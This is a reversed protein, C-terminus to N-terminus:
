GSVCAGTSVGAANRPLSLDTTLDSAALAYGESPRDTAYAFVIGVVQGASNVVPAGSDGAIIQASLIWVSRSVRGQGYINPGVATIQDALWVPITAIAAQGDPHGFAAGYIGASAGVDIPLASDGLNNVQLLAIDQNPDYLVVTAALRNGTPTYVFTEGPHEGAVVHANTAILDPGVAFGSGSAITNDCSNGRVRVTSAEVELATQTSLSIGTPPPPLNLPHILNAYSAPLVDQGVLNSLLEFVNPPTPLDQTVFHAVTSTRATKSPWGTTALVTPMLLWVAIVIGVSGTVAGAVKDIGRFGGMPLLNMLRAGVFLGAGQGIFGGFLMVLVTVVLRTTSSSGLWNARLLLPLFRASWYLGIALGLWSTARALLGIRFGAVAGLIAAVLIIFDLWNM